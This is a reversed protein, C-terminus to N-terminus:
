AGPARQARQAEAGHVPTSGQLATQARRGRHPRIAPCPTGNDRRSQARMM